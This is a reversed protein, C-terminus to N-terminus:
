LNREFRTRRHADYLRELEEIIKGSDRSRLTPHLYRGDECSLFGSTELSETVLELFTEDYEPIRIDFLM